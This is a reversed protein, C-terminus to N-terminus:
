VSIIAPSSTSNDDNYESNGEEDVEQITERKM